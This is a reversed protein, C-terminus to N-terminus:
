AADENGQEEATRPFLTHVNTGLLSAIEQLRYDPESRAIIQSVRSRTVPPQLRQGLTKLTMGQFYLKSDFLNRNIKRKIQAKRM